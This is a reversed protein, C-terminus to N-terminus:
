TCRFVGQVPVDAVALAEGGKGGGPWASPWAPEPIPLDELRMQWPSLLDRGRVDALTRRIAEPDPLRDALLRGGCTLFFRARRVVVGMKALDEPRIPGLRRAELIRRVSITGIGPVRLLTERDAREVAVPFEDLHRLAWDCKPDVDVPLDPQRPDVLERADFSYFRMLFDAQYLRHERLLPPATSLAPLNPHSVVPIYASYYVRKLRYQRYLGQALRLVQLDRDPSAGVIMQTSQGAPAFRPVSRLVRLADRTEERRDRIYRIPRSIGEVPKDPALVRLSGQSPLEVNVSVRDALRGLAEVSESSAGPIVKVHIYGQFGHTERLLRLTRVMLDMTHDPTRVVGSSLFLGEIYNRRYFGITLMALEEPTFAARPTDNSRRNMCYACDYECHNTLLVKLLSICRGDDTWSHCIGAAATSGIGGGAPGGSRRETGSSACSADYRAAEGLISLKTMLDM